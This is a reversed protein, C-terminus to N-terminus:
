QKNINKEVLELVVDINYTCIHLAPIEYQPWVGIHMNLPIM